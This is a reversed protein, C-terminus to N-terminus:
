YDSLKLASAVSLLLPICWSTNPIMLFIPTMFFESSNSASVKFVFNIKTDAWNIYVITVNNGTFNSQLLQMKLIRQIVPINAQHTNWPASDYKSSKVSLYLTLLKESFFVEQVIRIELLAKYLSLFILPWNFTFILALFSMRKSLLFYLTRYVIM